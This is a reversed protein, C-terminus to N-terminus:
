YSCLAKQRKKQCYHILMNKTLMKQCMFCRNKRKKMFLFALVSATIKREIRHIDRYKISFKINKFDLKCEFIRGVKKITAPHHDAPNLYKNFM